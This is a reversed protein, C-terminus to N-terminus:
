VSTTDAIKDALANDAAMARTVAMVPVPTAKVQSMLDLLKQKGFDVGLLFTHPPLRDDMALRCKGKMTPLVVEIEYIPATVKVQSIGFLTVTGVPSM